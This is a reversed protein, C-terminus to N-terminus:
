QYLVPHNEERVHRLTRLIYTCSIKRKVMIMWNRWYKCKVCRQYPEYDTNGDLFKVYQLYEPKSDKKTIVYRRGYEVIRNRVGAKDAKNDESLPSYTYLFGHDSTIMINTGGFDSTIIRVLNKLEEIADDCAPFVLTDSTHSAEDITDHNATVLDTYKLAVSDERDTKLIRDRFYYSETSQGDAFM